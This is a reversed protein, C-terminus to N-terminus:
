RAALRTLLTICYMALVLAAVYLVEVVIGWCSRRSYNVIRKLEYM